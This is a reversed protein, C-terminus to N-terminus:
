KNCDLCVSVAHKKCIPLRCKDCYTSTKRDRTRPCKSCRRRKNTQPYEINPINMDDAALNIGSQELNSRVMYPPFNNYTCTPGSQYYRNEQEEPQMIDCELMEQSGEHLNETKVDIDEDSVCSLFDTPFNDLKPEEKPIITDSM